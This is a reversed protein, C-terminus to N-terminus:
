EKQRKPSCSGGSDILKMLEESLCHPATPNASKEYAGILDDTSVTVTHRVTSFL